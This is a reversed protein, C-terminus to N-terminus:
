SLKPHFTSRCLKVISETVNVSSFEARRKHPENKAKRREIHATQNTFSFGLSAFRGCVCHMEGISALYKGLNKKIRRENVYCVNERFRILDIM